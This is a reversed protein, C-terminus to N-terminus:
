IATDDAIYRWSGSTTSWYAMKGAQTPSNNVCVIQGVAGANNSWYNRTNVNVREAVVDSLGAGSGIYQGSATVDGNININDAFQVESTSSSDLTTTQGSAGDFHLLLVTNSDTTFPTTTPTFGSGSYRAVNSWRFEDLYGTWGPPVATDTSAGVRVDGTATNYDYTDTFAGVNAGNVFMTTVNGSRQVAVHSWVNATLPTAYTIDSTFNYGSYVVNGADFFVRPRYDFSSGVGGTDVIVAQAAGTPLLTPNVFSEVTFSGSTGPAFEVSNPTSVFSNGSITLGLSTPGFKAAAGSLAANASVTMPKNTSPSSNLIFGGKVDINGTVTLTNVVNANYTQLTQSTNSWFLNGTAALRGGTLAAGGINFQILGDDGAAGGGADSSKVEVYFPTGGSVGNPTQYFTVTTTSYATTSVTNFGDAYIVPGGSLTSPLTVAYGTAGQRIQVTVSQSQPATLTTATNYAGTVLNTVDTIAMAGTPTVTQVQGNVANITVNGTTTAIPYAYYHQEITSGLRVQALNGANMFAYLNGRQFSSGINQLGFQGSNQDPFLYGITNGVNATTTVLDVLHAGYAAVNAISINGTANNFMSSIHGYGNGVVTGNGYFQLLGSTATAYRTTINAGIQTVLNPNAGGLSLVGSIANLGNNIAGGGTTLYTNGAAGGSVNVFSTIGHVRSGAATINGDLSAAAWTTLAGSIVAANNKTYADMIAVRPGRLVNTPDYALISTNGAVGSGILVRGGTPTTTTSADPAFVVDTAINRGSVVINGTSSATANATGVIAQQNSSINGTASVFAFANAGFTNGELNGSLNGSINATTTIGTLQSGNGLFFGGAINATTTINGTSSITNSGFAAMFGAVNANSYNATIGTLQSGNGLFYNGQVNGTATIAGPVDLEGTTNTFTFGATTGINGANNYLVQTNAGPVTVNGTINGAFNGVFFGATEINGTASITGTTNVAGTATINGVTNAGDTGVSLLSVVNANGYAGQPTVSGSGSYLTTFNKSSTTSM